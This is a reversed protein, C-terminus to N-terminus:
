NDRWRKKEYIHYKLITQLDKYATKSGQSFRTNEIQEWIKQWHDNITQKVMEPNDLELLKQFLQFDHSSHKVLKKLRKHNDIRYQHLEYLFIAALSVGENSLLRTTIM